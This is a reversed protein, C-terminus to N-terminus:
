EPTLKHTLNFCKILEKNESLKNNIINIKIYVVILVFSLFAIIGAIVHLFYEHGIINTKIFDIKNQSFEILVDSVADDLDTFYSVASALIIVFFIFHKSTFINM